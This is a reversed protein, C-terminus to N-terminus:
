RLPAQLYGEHEDPYFSYVLVEDMEMVVTLKDKDAPSKEPLLPPLKQNAEKIKKILYSIDKLDTIDEEKKKKKEEETKFSFFVSRQIINTLTVKQSQQFSQTLNSPCIRGLRKFMCSKPHGFIFNLDSNRIQQSKLTSRVYRACLCCYYM